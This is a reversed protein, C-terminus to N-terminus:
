KTANARLPNIICKSGSNDDYLFWEIMKVRFFFKTPEQINSVNSMSLFNQNKSFGGASRVNDFLKTLFSM